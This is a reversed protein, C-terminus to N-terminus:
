RFRAEERLSTERDSSKLGIRALRTGATGGGFRAFVGWYLVAFFFTVGATTIGALPWSPMAHAVGLFIVLFLLVACCLVLGDMVEALHQSIVSAEGTASKPAHWSGSAPTDLSPTAPNGLQIVPRATPSLVLETESQERSQWMSEQLVMRSLLDRFIWANLRGQLQPDPDLFHLGAQGYVNAWRVRAHLDVTLKSNPLHFRLRVRQSEQVAKVAHIAAGDASLDCLIGQNEDDVTMYALPLIRHRYKRRASGGKLVARRAAETQSLSYLM